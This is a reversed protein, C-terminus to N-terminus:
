KKINQPIEVKFSVKKKNRNIWAKATNKTLASPRVSPRFFRASSQATEMVVGSSVLPDDGDDDDDVDDDDDNGSVDDDDDVDDIEFVRPVKSMLMVMMMMGMVIGMM